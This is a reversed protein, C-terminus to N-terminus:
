VLPIVEVEHIGYKNQGPVIVKKFRQECNLCIITTSGDEDKEFDWKEERPRWTDENM